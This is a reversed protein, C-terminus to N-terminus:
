KIRKKEKELNEEFYKKNKSLIEEKNELYRERSKKKMYERNNDRWVKTRKRDCAKCISNLGYKGAKQNGFHENTADHSVNCMTCARTPTM